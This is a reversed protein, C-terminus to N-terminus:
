WLGGRLQLNISFRMEERVATMSSGGCYHVVDDVKDLFLFANEVVLVLDRLAIKVQYVRKVQENRIEGHVRLAKAVTKLLVDSFEQMTIILKGGRQLCVSVDDITKTIDTLFDHRKELAMIHSRTRGRAQQPTQQYASPPALLLSCSVHVHAPGIYLFYYALTIISNYVCDYFIRLIAM